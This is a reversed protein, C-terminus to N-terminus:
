PASVTSSGISIPATPRCALRRACRAWRCATLVRASDRPWLRRVRAHGPASPPTISPASPPAPTASAAARIALGHERAAAEVMEYPLLRGDRRLNFAISGGRAHLSRPGYIVVHDDLEALRKLLGTTLNSIHREITSLGLGQFWRLGDCVAPMALFNPTGDEFAEAGRKTRVVDNQVSVFQVTGGGFFRRQLIPLADRRALLAGVGTPYGFLKYYSLVVFDAPVASLSLASTGAYAAADLLVHYGRRQAESVWALPHRVGSFNSQAPFAFLSRGAAPSLLPGPDESRLDPDLAVYKVLAGRQRAALRLGNVSNHNDATMVLRSRRSFPFAEALIRIAASANATFIVEYQDPDADFLQLTLSRAQILAHTSAQSPASDSHPNGLVAAALREM